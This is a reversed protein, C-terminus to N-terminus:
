TTVKLLINSVVLPISSKIVHPPIPAKAIIMHLFELSDDSSFPLCGTVLQYLM